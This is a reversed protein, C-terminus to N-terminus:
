LAVRVPSLTRKLYLPHHPYGAEGIQYVEKLLRLVKKDRGMFEGLRGWAAVVLDADKAVQVLYKDNEGGIPRPHGMMKRPDTARFAFLNTMVMKSYGWSNAFGRCRRITPDDKTEDATSPNLGIFMVYGDKAEFMSRQWERSLTYRYIRDSSFIASMEM